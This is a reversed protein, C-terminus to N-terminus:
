KPAPPDVGANAILSSRALVDSSQLITQLLPPPYKPHENVFTWIIEAASETNHGAFSADLWQKAFLASGTRQVEELWDLTRGLYKESSAGRLPHHLWALADVVWPEHRRNAADALSEFLRDRTERDKSVAPMVFAFAAKRAPHDIRERQGELMEAWGEVERVALELAINTYDRETLTLGPIKAASRWLRQLRLIAEPTTAVRRFARFYAAKLTPTQARELGRQFALEFPLALAERGAAPLFRWYMDVLDGLIREAILEDAEAPLARLALEVFEEPIVELELLGDWLALWLSARIAPDNIAPLTVMLYDRSDKDILFLGYGSSAINSLVFRPAPMDESGAVGVIPGDTVISLRRTGSSYGLVPELTQVWIVPRRDRDLQKIELTGLDGENTLEVSAQIVPRGPTELWVRSVADLDEGTRERLIALLDSWAANGFAYRKLYLKLAEQFRAESVFAEIQRMVAPGKRYVIAGYLAGANKLNDLPQRIANPRSSRDVDYAAPQHALLFRVEHNVGPVSASLIKAAMVGALAEKLWLDDFWTQTVVGGFWLHATEHAITNARELEEMRTPSQDLLLAPDYFLAGPHAAGAFPSSQLILIDFKGWPYPVATYREMWQLAAAH